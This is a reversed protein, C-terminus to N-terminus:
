SALAVEAGPRGRDLAARGAGDRVSRALRLLSELHRGFVERRHHPFRNLTLQCCLPLTLAVSRTTAESSGRRNEVAAPKLLTLIPSARPMISVRPRTAMISAESAM